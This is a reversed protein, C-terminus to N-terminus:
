EPPGQLLSIMQQAFVVNPDDILENGNIGESALWVIWRDRLFIM